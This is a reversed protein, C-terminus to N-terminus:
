ILAKSMSNLNSMTLFAHWTVKLQQSFLRDPYLLETDHYRTRSHHHANTIQFLTCLGLVEATDFCKTDNHIILQGPVILRDGKDETSNSDGHMIGNFDKNTKRTLM